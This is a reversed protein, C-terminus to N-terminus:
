QLPQFSIDETHSNAYCLGDSQIPSYQTALWGRGPGARREKGEQVSEPPVHRVREALEVFFFSLLFVDRDGYTIAKEVCQTKLTVIKNFKGIASM